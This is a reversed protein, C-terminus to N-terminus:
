ITSAVMEGPGGTRTDDGLRASGRLEAGGLAVASCLTSVM